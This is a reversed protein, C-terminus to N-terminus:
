HSHTWLKAMKPQQPQQIIANIYEESTKDDFGVLFSGGSTLSICKNSRNTQQKGDKKEVENRIASPQTSSRRARTRRRKTEDDKGM